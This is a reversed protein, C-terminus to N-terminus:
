LRRFEEEGESEFIDRVSQKTALEVLQDTDAFDRPGDATPQALAWSFVTRVSEVGSRAMLAWQRDKQKAPATAIDGDWMVGYFGFPVQRKAAHATPIVAFSAGLVALISILRLMPHM